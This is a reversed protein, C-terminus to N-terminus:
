TLFAVRSQILMSNAHKVDGYHRASSPIDMIYLTDPCDIGLPILPPMGTVGMLYQRADEVTLDRLWELTMPHVTGEEAARDHESAVPESDLQTSPASGDPEREPKRAKWEDVMDVDHEEPAKGSPNGTAHCGNDACELMLADEVESMASGNHEAPLCATPLEKEMDPYAM